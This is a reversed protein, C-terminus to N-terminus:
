TWLIQHHKVITMMAKLDKEELEKELRNNERYAIEYPQKLALTDTLDIDPYSDLHAKLLKDREYKVYEYAEKLEGYSTMVDDIYKQSVFAREKDWDITLQDLGNENEVFDTLITFLLRPVLETKDCWTNPIVKTLWKQRPKFWACIDDKIQTIRYNM